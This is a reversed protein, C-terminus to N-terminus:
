YLQAPQTMHVYNKGEIITEDCRRFTIQVNKGTNYDIAMDKGILVDEGDSDTTLYVHNSVGTTTGTLKIDDESVSEIEVDIYYAEGPIEMYAVVAGDESFHFIIRDMGFKKITESDCIWWGILKAKISAELDATEGGANNMGASSTSSGTNKASCGTCVVSFIVAFIIGMIKKTYM